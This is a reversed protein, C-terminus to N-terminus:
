STICEKGWTHFEKLKNELNKTSIAWKPGIKTNIWDYLINCFNQEPEKIFLRKDAYNTCVLNISRDEYDLSSYMCDSYINFTFNNEYAYDTKDNYSIVIRLNGIEKKSFIPFEIKFESIM